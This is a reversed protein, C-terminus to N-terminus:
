SLRGGGYNIFPINQDIKKFKCKEVYEQANNTKQALYEEEPEEM